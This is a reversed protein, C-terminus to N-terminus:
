YITQKLREPYAADYAAGDFPDRTNATLAQMMQGVTPLALRPIQISPDWLKSRVLAKQCQPYVKEATVVIVSQPIKGEMTFSARLEPDTSIVARGNVRMTEGVGPILFLLAVRPDRVINRLSDIRNNGRRDPIMLTKEDAVRVFGKPDGRPSCDLGEEGVTGLLMFPSAEIFARYHDSIYDIEKIVAAGAPFGYIAELEAITKVTHADSTM